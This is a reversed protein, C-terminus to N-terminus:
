VYKRIKDLNHILSFINWQINVKKKTRLTFYNLRKHFRINAFVPEVIGMRKSYLDKGEKSDIKERMLESFNKKNPVNRLTLLTKVKANKNRLCKERLECNLCDLRSSAYRKGIYRNKFTSESRSRKLVKGQPCIFVDRESDYQFKDIRYYSKSEDKKGKHREATVYRSDRRRFNNDPIYADINKSALYELNWESFNGNDALFIKGSLYNEEGKVKQMIAETGRVMDDVYEQEHSDGFAEAYVIIQNKADVMAEGTYGQIVGHSSKIRSSENDTVNSQVEKIKKGKKPNNNQIFHTIKEIKKKYNEIRKEYGEISESADMEKHKSILFNMMAEYKGKKKELDSFTGSWEKAANSSVKHGDLAFIEGGILGLENCVAIVEVFISCIEEDISSVFEAITSHDPCTNASISKFLINEKCLTEIRRSSFIGRSYALIIIKLIVVPSIAKRGTKDNKYRKDFVSTDIYENDFLYCLTHEFTGELIQESYIVPLMLIQKYDIEKYRAMIQM